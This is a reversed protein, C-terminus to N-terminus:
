CQPGTTSDDDDDDYTVICLTEMVGAALESDEVSVASHLEDMQLANLAAFERVASSAQMSNSRSDDEEDSYTVLCLAGLAAQQELENDQELAAFAMRAAASMPTFHPSTELYSVACPKGLERASRSGPKSVLSVAGELLQKLLGPRAAAAAPEISM